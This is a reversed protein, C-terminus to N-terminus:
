RWHKPYEKHSRVHNEAFDVDFPFESLPEEVLVQNLKLFSPDQNSNLPSILIPHRVEEDFNRAASSELHFALISSASSNSSRAPTNLNLLSPVWDPSTGGAAEPQFALFESRNALM